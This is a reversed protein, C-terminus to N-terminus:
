KGKESAAPHFLSEGEVKFSEILKQTEPSTIWEIFKMAENYKVAAYRAPNVAIVSYPNNLIPDGEFVVALGMKKGVALYTGRDSLTYGAKEKTMQLTAEMGQGVELYYKADPAGGVSKWLLLEKANTGSNDGRSLFYVQGTKIKNLAESLNKSKKVGAPDDAPGVLVFDNVMVPRRNVGFGADMFKQEDEPSHVLLVDVDGNEGLKMAKGSGVAIVDIKINNKKEFDPLIYALLGSNETSTTTALRLRIQEEARNVTAGILMVALIFAAQMVFVKYKRM